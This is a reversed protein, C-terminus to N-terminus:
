LFVQDHSLYKGIVPEIEKYNAVVEEMSRKGQKVLSTKVPINPVGLFSFVEEGFVKQPDAVVDEYAVLKGQERMWPYELVSAYERNNKEYFAELEHLDVTIHATRLKAEEKVVYQKTIHAIKLSVFQELIGRRYLILYKADPMAEHFDGITIGHLDFQGILIKCGGIDDALANVSRQVHHLLAEKANPQPKFGYYFKPNLFEHEMSVQPISNLYDLLM